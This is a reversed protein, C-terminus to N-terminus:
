KKKAVNRTAIVDVGLDAANKLIIDGITVPATVKVAKIAKMLNEICDKRIEEKTKVSVMHRDGNIVQVSSTVTRVPNIVEKRVYKDGVACSNGSISVIKDDEMQVQIACGLPCGICTFNKTTM